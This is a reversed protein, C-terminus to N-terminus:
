IVAEAAAAPKRALKLQKLAPEKLLAPRQQAAMSAPAPGPGHVPALFVLRRVQAVYVAAQRPESRVAMRAVALATQWPRAVPDMGSLAGLAPVPLKMGARGPATLAASM